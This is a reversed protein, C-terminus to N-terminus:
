ADMKTCKYRRVLNFTPILGCPTYLFSLVLCSWGTTVTLPLSSFEELRKIKGPGQNKVRGLVQERVEDSLLDDGVTAELSELDKAGSLNALAYDELVAIVERDVKRDRAERAACDRCILDDMLPHPILNTTAFCAYCKIDKNM